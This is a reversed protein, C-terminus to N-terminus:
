RPHCPFVLVTSSNKIPRPIALTTWSRTTTTSSLNNVLPAHVLSIDTSASSSLSHPPKLALPTWHPSITEPRRILVAKIRELPRRRYYAKILNPAHIQGAPEWTNDSEPYGKWKVLYQLTRSRGHCRHSIISNFTSACAHTILTHAAGAGESWTSGSYCYHESCNLNHLMCRGITSVRTM